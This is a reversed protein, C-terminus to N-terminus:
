HKLKSVLPLDRDLLQLAEALQYETSPTMNEFRISVGTANVAVVRGPLTMERGGLTMTLVATDDRQLAVGTTIRCGGASLDSVRGLGAQTNGRCYADIRVPFRRHKRREPGM